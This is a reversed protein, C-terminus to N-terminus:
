SPVSMRTKESVVADIVLDSREESLAVDGEPGAGLVNAPGPSIEMIPKWSCEAMYIDFQPLDKAPILVETQFSGDPQMVLPESFFVTEAAPRSNPIAPVGEKIPDVV